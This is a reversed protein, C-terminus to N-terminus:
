PPAPLRVTRGESASAYLASIARAQGLADERGLLPPRGTTVAEALDDLELRYANAEPADVREVEDGRRLELVGDYDPRFPATCLLTGLEGHVELEQRHPLAFSALVHGAPGGPLALQAAFTTDVGAAADQVGSVALPEGALLRMAGVGYCGLDMLVGGDLAPDLRVDDGRGSRVLDFSFHARLARVAGVAGDRVLEEIRRTQPHHRWMFAETLVLGAQEAVDWAADVEDPRRTFPKECLVHKGAELARVSWEFHLSNPLSVYVADVEPDALLAEYSGHARPIGHEAAYSEALEASRSAVAVVDVRDSEAAGALIQRNIRATSLLGLRLTV